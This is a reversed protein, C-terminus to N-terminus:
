PTPIRTGKTDRGVQRWTAHSVRGNEDKFFELQADVERMFFKTDSEPFILRPPAGRGSQATLQNGQQRVMMIVGPEVEYAGVYRALVEPSLTIEKRESILVVSEGHAVASLKFALEDTTPGNVNALVAVTVRTEPYYALYSNFGNVGGTHVYRTQSGATEIGIGLGNNETTATLMKKLAAASLLKGGFLARNWRLLDETTSYLAGASFPITMSIFPANGLGTPGLRYGAARRALIASHSDYGSSEMGLPGFVNERLFEGYSKGSVKQILHGLVVYGSNSYQYKEGPAFALPRDQFKQLLQEVTVDVAMTSQYEPFSTFNPIGSTHSLLHFITVADWSVPSDPLYKRIPDEISLRGREELLLTAAATFQKTLSGIRFRTGASNPIAWELNASGYGQNLLIEDGRSVLVTGMFRNDLTFSRVVQDLRASDQAFSATAAALLLTVVSTSLPGTFRM